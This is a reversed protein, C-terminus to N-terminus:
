CPQELAHPQRSRAWRTEESIHMGPVGLGTRNENLQSSPQMRDCQSAVYRTSEERKRSIQKNIFTFACQPINPSGGVARQLVAILIVAGCFKHFDGPCAPIVSDFMPVNSSPVFDSTRQSKFRSPCHTFPVMLLM